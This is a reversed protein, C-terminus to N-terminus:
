CARSTSTPAGPWSRRVCGRGAAAPAAPGQPRHLLGGPGVSLRGGAVYAAVSGIASLVVLAFCLYRAIDLFPLTFVFFGVDYGFLPDAQGFPTPELFRLITLWQSSAVVSLFFGLLASVAIAVLGFHRPDLM